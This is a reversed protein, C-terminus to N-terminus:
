NLRVIHKRYEALLADGEGNKLWECYYPMWVNHNHLEDAAFPMESADRVIAMIKMVQARISQATHGGGPADPTRVLYHAERDGLSVFGDNKQANRGGDPQEQPVHGFLDDIAPTSAM